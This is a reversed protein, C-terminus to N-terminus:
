VLNSLAGDLRAKFAELSSADVAERPLKNWHRVVRITFFKKRIDLRLRHEKLKFGN